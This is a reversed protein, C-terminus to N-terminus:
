IRYKRWKKIVKRPQNKKDVNRIKAGFVQPGKKVKKGFEVRFHRSSSM